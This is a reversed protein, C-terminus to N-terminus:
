KKWPNGKIKVLEDFLKKYHDAWYDMTFKDLRCINHKQINLMDIKKQGHKSILWEKMVDPKGGSYINDQHSQPALNEFNFAVAFNTKSGDFVKIFHGCHAKKSNISM